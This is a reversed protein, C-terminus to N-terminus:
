RVEIWAGQESASISKDYMAECSINPLYFKGAYTATLYSTFVKTEGAGLDFFTYISADRVDQFDYESNENTNVEGLRLNQIEWGSPLSHNLALEEYEMRRDSINKVKVVAKFDTGQKLTKHDLANGSLDYYKVSLSIGNEFSPTPKPLPKGENVLRVYLPGNSTNTVEVKHTLSKKMGVYHNRLIESEQINVRQADDIKIKYNLETTKYDELFDSLAMLSVATTQTSYWEKSSLEKAIDIALEYGETSEGIINLCYLILARDRLRSGYTYGLEKYDEIEYMVGNILENAVESQNILAYSAALLFSTSNQINKQVRLNNMSGLDAHGALALTFLRYAQELESYRKARYNYKKAQEKQFVVWDDIFSDPVFYGLRKAELMFHGAYTTGWTNHYRSGPWYSLGGDFRQFSILRRIGAKINESIENEDLISNSSINSLYLQPFVSSTTQEVCGYPYKILYSLRKQLNFDPFQSVEVYAKNTGSVGINEFDFEVVGDKDLLRSEVKTISPSPNRVDIETKEFAKYNGSQANVEIEAIGIDSGTSIKFNHLKDGPREFKLNASTENQTNILDSTGLSIEANKIDDKYAFVNVPLYLSENPALVRPLTTLLMLPDKVPVNKEAYGFADAKKSIVMVRVSGVYNPLDISHLKNEGSALTFPGLYKVVSKFRNASPSKTDSASEADGGISIIREIQEGFKNLVLDYLDWTKVGLTQKAYFHSWPDPTKFNTIDLLGEDVVALVYSMDKGDKESVSINASTNPKFTEKTTIVPKLVTAKDVVKVNQIGYMRIPLDNNKEASQLMTAHVYINPTMEPGIKIPVKLLDSSAEKWFSEIVGEGNEISILVQANKGTPLELQMTEGVAYEKKDTKMNLVAVAGEEKNSYSYRSTRFLQGTCHGSEIDCVRILYRGYGNLKPNYTAQGKENTKIQITHLSERHDMSNFKYIDNNSRNYWWYWDAQYLGVTLNRNAAIEGNPMLSIINIKEKKDVNIYPMGWRSKPVHVGVYSNYPNINVSTFDESYNGSKEYVKTRITSKLKGPALFKKDLKLAITQNGEVDLTGSYVKNMTSNIKRAPDVFEFDDYGKFGSNDLMYQAQVDAKLNSAPAGHLWKANLKLKESAAIDILDGVEYDIKIRNPKITEVKLNKRLKYNGVQVNAVWNGTPDSPNTPVHFVYIGDKNTINVKGYCPQGKSNKVDLKVPHNPDIKQQRDFLMFTLHMTDGPRWVSREGFLFGNIGDKIKVGNVDFESLSNSQNDKLNLYAYNNGDQAIAFMVPRETEATAIGNSNTSLSTLLQNQQDYLKLDASTPQASSLKNTYVHVKNDSKKVILGLDSAMLNRFLFKDRQYYERYCPNNRNNYNYDYYFNNFDFASARQDNTNESCTYNAYSAKYGIQVQYIAGPDLATMKSIDLAYRVWQNKNSTPSIDELAIKQNHIVRGLYQDANLNSLNGYRLYQPVNNAFIKFVQIEITDLSIAEFPFQVSRNNSVINGNVLSRVAPKEETFLVNFESDKTLTKGQNNIINKNIIIKKTGALFQNLYIDLINNNRSFKYTGKYDEISVLGDFKQDGVLDSFVVKIHKNNEGELLQVDYISFDGKSPITITTKDKIAQGGEKIQWSINVTQEKNIKEFAEVQLLYNKRGSKNLNIFSLPKNDLEINFINELDSLTLSKNTEINLDLRIKNPESEFNMRLPRETVHFYFPKTTLNLVYPHINDKEDPFLNNLDVVIQYKQNYELPAKNKFIIKNRDRYFDGSVQPSIKIITNDVIEEDMVSSSNLGWFKVFITEDFNINSASHSQIYKAGESDSSTVSPTEKCSYSFLIISITFLFQISKM